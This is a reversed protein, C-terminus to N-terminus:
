PHDGFLEISHILHVEPDPRHSSKLLHQGLEESPDVTVLCPDLQYHIRPDCWGATQSLMQIEFAQRITTMKVVLSFIENYDEGRKQQFGKVVVQAKYRKSGDQEEKVRFVWKSQLANKGAPLQLGPSEPPDEYMYLRPAERRLSHATKLTKNMQDEMIRSAGVTKPGRVRIQAEVQAKLSKLIQQLRPEMYLTRILHSMEAKSSRTVRRIGFAIHWRMQVMVKLYALSAEKGQWEEEKSTLIDMGKESMHGLRQHWLAANGRGSTAVNIGDSPVEVMYLSGHKNGRAVVLSGKTVKWQQDRFGVHYGEEDLQGASILRRKLGLIYRVDKLTWSTGFSTKLVVDRVGAIDLTKDVALRAKGSRLRLKELEEKCFTAHFSARSDMIRDENTNEVCCVLADDYDTIDQNNKSQCRKKSKSRGRNQKQRKDQKRGRGKDEASLLYNSYEGSTKRCIDEGLILDSINDFNLKTTGTLGSVATVTSPKEYMNSLAKFLIYTTKENVVSYAVNKVLSLRIASLAQRDLLTWVEAKIGTPKAEALPEHLKKQYLYDEIQM